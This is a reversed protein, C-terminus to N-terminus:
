THINDDFYFLSFKQKTLFNIYNKLKLKLLTCVIKITLNLDVLLTFSITVKLLFKGVSEGAAIAIIKSLVEAISTRIAPSSKANADLHAM